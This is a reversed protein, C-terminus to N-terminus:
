SVAADLAVLLETMGALGATIRELPRWSASAFSERFGSGSLIVVVRDGDDILGDRRARELGAIAAASSPEVYLGEDRGIQRQAAIADYETVVVSGGASRRLADLAESGDPPFVHAIKALITPPAVHGLPYIEDPERGPERFARAIADYGAAVVGLLRPLQRIRGAAHLDLFGRWIGAVTGGGGVPVVVWEPAEGLEEVIEYAITKPGEAQYPNSTRATSSVYIRGGAGLEAVREIVLDIEADVEVIAAGLAFAPYIREDPVGRGVVVVSRLGARASAAANSIGTSGASVVVSARRGIAKAHTLAVALARDKHSGTPNRTEDKLWVHGVAVRSELLPTAGEALTVIDDPSAIPLRRWYKWMSRTFRPDAELPRDYRFNLPGSCAFCTLREASQEAGCACCYPVVDM